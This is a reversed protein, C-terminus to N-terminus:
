RPVGMLKGTRMAVNVAVNKLESKTIYDNRLDSIYKDKNNIPLTKSYLNGVVTFIEDIVSDSIKKCNKIWM